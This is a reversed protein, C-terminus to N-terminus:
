KLYEEIENVAVNLSSAILEKSVGKELLTRALEKQGEARGEERGEAHGEAHGVAFGEEHGEERAIRRDTNLCKQYDEEATM